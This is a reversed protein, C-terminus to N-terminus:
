RLLLLPGQANCLMRTTTSGVLFERIRSHGYAGMVLLDIGKEDQYALLTEAVDGSRISAETEFGAQQLQHQAESIQEWADKTDAGVMVLHVPLGRFLPSRAIMEVGKRTTASGDFALMLSEPTKFLPPSALIPRHLTRVASELQSGVHPHRGGDKEGHLGMVLLRTEDQLGALSGVLDDHRQKLIPDAVGDAEARKKAEDLMRRGDDLALKSRQEDLATMEELMHERSGLGINGSLDEKVPYQSRDLVHLLVLPAELRLSAWAAYDCVAASSPSGDICAIVQTM